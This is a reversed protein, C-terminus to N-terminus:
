DAVVNSTDAEVRLLKKFERNNKQALQVLKNIINQKVYPISMEESKYTLYWKAFFNAACKM